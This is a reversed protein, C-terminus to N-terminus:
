LAVIADIEVLADKPLASVGVTARAPPEDATFFSEYAENIEAFNGMNTTYITLRVARQLSADAAECM